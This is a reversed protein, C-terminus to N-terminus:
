DIDLRIDAKPLAKKRLRVQPRVILLLVATVGASVVLVEAIISYIHGLRSLWSAAALVPLFFIAAPRPKMELRAKCQTCTLRSWGDLNFFFPTRVDHDCVPCKAMSCAGLRANVTGNNNWRTLSVSPLATSAQPPDEKIQNHDALSDRM